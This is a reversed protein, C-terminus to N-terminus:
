NDACEYLCPLSLPERIVRTLTTWLNRLDVCIQRAPFAARLFIQSFRRLKRIVEQRHGTPAASKTVLFFEADCSDRVNGANVFSPAASQGPWDDSSRCNKGFFKSM